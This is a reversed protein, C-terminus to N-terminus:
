AFEGPPDQMAQGGRTSIPLNGTGHTDIMSLNMTLLDRSLDDVSKQDTQPREPFYDRQPTGSTAVLSSKDAFDL